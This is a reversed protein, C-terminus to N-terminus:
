EIYLKIENIKSESTLGIIQIQIHGAIAYKEFVGSTVLDVVKIRPTFTEMNDSPTFKIIEEGNEDSIIVQIFQIIGDINIHIKNLFGQIYDTEYTGDEILDQLRYVQIM